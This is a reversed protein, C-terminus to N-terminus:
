TADQQHKQEGTERGPTVHEQAAAAAAGGPSRAAALLDSQLGHIQIRSSSVTNVGLDSQPGHLALGVGGQKVAGPPGDVAHGTSM